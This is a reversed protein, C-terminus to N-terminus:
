CILLLRPQGDTEEPARHICPQATSQPHDVALHWLEGLGLRVPRATPLPQYHLDFFHDTLWTDFGNEPGDYHQRLAARLEPVQVKQRAQANPLLESCAGHYTCLFTDCPVPARDVHFSYVDTPFFPVAKDREYSRIINVVPSAGHATLLRLDELLMARAQQGEPSLPLDLLLEEDLLTIPDGTDAKRVIEAFDGRLPRQWGIANHAGHLPTSVLDHFTTVHPM